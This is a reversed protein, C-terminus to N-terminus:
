PLGSCFERLAEAFVPSVSCAEPCSVTAAEPFQAVIDQYGEETSGLCGAHEGLLLPLGLANLDDGVPEPEAGLRDWIRVALDNDPFREVMRAAVEESVSGATVQAIGNRIFARRDTRLLAGMASWVERNIAPREGETSRSLSAHGM